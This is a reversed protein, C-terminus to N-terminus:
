MSSMGTSSARLHWVGVVKLERPASALLRWGTQMTKSAEHLPAFQILPCLVPYDIRSQPSTERRRPSFNFGPWIKSSVAPSPVFSRM